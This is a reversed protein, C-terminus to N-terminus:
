PHPDTSIFLKQDVKHIFTIHDQTIQLVLLGLIDQPVTM